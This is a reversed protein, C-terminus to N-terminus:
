IDILKVKIHILVFGVYARSWLKLSDKFDLIIFPAVIYAFSFQTVLLGFVDYIKKYPGDSKQDATMFLPRVHRRFDKCM